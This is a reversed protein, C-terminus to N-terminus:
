NDYIDKRHGVHLNLIVFVDNDIVSIIRYNWVRFRVYDKYKGKLTKGPTSPFDIDVLHKEIWRMIGKQVGRDLKKLDKEFSPTFQVTYKAM